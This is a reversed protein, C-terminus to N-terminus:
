LTGLWWNGDGSYYFMVQAHGAGTFDAIWIPHQGDILNGFGGSQSVLSWQLQGGVMDGLWWNGDGSYYFMVQAHGARTFDAIWIPHQGDILNGFGGSQSALSWQLQGGVMDGLWWNGDGSYYFMVQAHGSRTFDAIWIPHQGDILNGFGGSQSALSWQLTPSLVCANQVNSWERQVTFGGVVGTQWACIDGIEGNSNDNWGSWPQPDTIGECLEHSSTSTLAQIQTLPGLCGACGPFPMIAYYIEPNTNAIFWHYGCMQTCSVDGFPDTVTVGPPMYVFYLTNNNPQQITLNNIWAQLARQIQNDTVNGQGGGPESSTITSTGVRSGRGIAEGPVSYEALLDLLPSKLIVDFFQNIQPVLANQAPQAWAAGWFITYVEVSRLLPGNGYSLHAPPAGIPAAAAGYM